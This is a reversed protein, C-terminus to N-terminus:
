GIGRQVQTRVAQAIACEWFAHQRLFIAIGLPVQAWLVVLAHPQSIAKVDAARVGNVALRWFVEKYTGMRGHSAGCDALAVSSPPSLTV